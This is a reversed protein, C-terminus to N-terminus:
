RNVLTIGVDVGEIVFPVEKREPHFQFKIPYAVADM